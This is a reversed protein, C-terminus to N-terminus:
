LFNFLKFIKMQQLVIFLLFIIYLFHVNPCNNVNAGKEILFKTMELDDNEVATLLPTRKWKNQMEITENAKELIKNAENTNKEIISQFFNDVFENTSPSKIILQEKYSTAETNLASKFGSQYSKYDKTNLFQLVTKFVSCDGFPKLIEMSKEYSLDSVNLYPLILVAQRGYEKFAKNVISIAEDSTLSDPYKSIGASIIEIPLKYFLDEEIFYPLTESIVIVVENPDKGKELDELWRKCTSKASKSARM